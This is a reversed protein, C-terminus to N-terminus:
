IPYLNENTENKFLTLTKSGPHHLVDVNSYGFKNSYEGGGGGPVVRKSNM